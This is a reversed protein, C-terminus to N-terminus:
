GLKTMYFHVMAIYMFFVCFHIQKLYAFTTAIIKFANKLGKKAM